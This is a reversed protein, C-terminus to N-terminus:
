NVAREALRTLAVRRLEPMPLAAEEASLFIGRFELFEILEARDLSPAAPADEPEGPQETTM